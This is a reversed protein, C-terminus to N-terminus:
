LAGEARLTDLRVDLKKITVKAQAVRDRLLEDSVARGSGVLRKLEDSSILMYFINDEVLSKEGYGAVRTIDSILTKIETKKLKKM